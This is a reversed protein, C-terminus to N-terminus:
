SLGSLVKRLSQFVEPIESANCTGVSLRYWSSDDSSGFASFPVVALRAEDLIHQTVDKQTALIKGKETKMGKLDLQITLYIAAQPAIAHVRFGAKKLEMFGEYFGHLRTDIENKFKELFLNLSPKNQLYKGTAVQEAKPAWAGVHSLIARMKDMIRQPGFAWGVRVGTAALSKSIGDIFITYDRMAPRLSVPNFHETKGFTLVWYIQDYMLYLPKEGSRRRQNEELVLDCIETLQEKKFVTGTPNLPSCLSLLTANKLHPRIEEATPMFNNEPQTEVLVSHAGALHCYHNNNWSPVPFVVTDGKDLLTTYTAYILPRAGGSILVEDAAYSLGERENLFEAVVKRLEPMGNAAPYNTQHQQYAAIIEDNLENPIPFIKPDFDGITYNFIREGNRIKEQIEAALKIIESGILNEAMGSVKLPHGKEILTESM